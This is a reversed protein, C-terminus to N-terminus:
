WPTEGYDSFFKGTPGDDDISAYKVIPATAEKVTKYGSHNNFDTDTYGPNVSNIKFNSDKFEYALMVTFANLATKSSCYALSKYNYFEWQPNTHNSLSALDSSVNVIRPASSKKLLPIFAQTTQVVGFFNTDFVNRINEQSISSANQPLTGLIGANNILVDLHPIKNELEIKAKIVSDADTVDLMLIDVDNFGEAKLQEVATKGKQEDRCGIFVFYDKTLLQRATELGISKNAGTILVTKKM